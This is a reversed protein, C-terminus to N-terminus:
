MNFYAKLREVSCDTKIKEKEPIEPKAVGELSNIETPLGQASLVEMCADFWRRDRNAYSFCLSLINNCSICSCTVALGYNRTDGNVFELKQLKGDLEPPLDCAGFNTLITTVASHSKKQMMALVPQKIFYPVIKLVPNRKLAGYKTLAKNLNEMTLQTKLQGKVANCIDEFTYDARGAPRFTVYSQIVFNRISKTEFFRRLNVPDAVTIPALIPADAARIVGLILVALLYETVTMGKAHALAIVKDEPMEAFLLRIFDQEYTEDFHFAKESNETPKEGGKVYYADFANVATEEASAFPVYAETGGASLYTYRKLIEGFFKMMGKGDGLSHSAELAVRNEHYVLRFDPLGRYAATIPLLPRAAESRVQPRAESVVQYTWFFGKHLSTSASPYYGIVDRVAQRLLAPQVTENLYAAFRFTRGWNKTTLASFMISATDTKMWRHKKM